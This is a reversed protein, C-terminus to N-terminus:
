HDNRKHVATRIEKKSVKKIIAERKDSKTKTRALGLELKILNNKTYAKLPIIRLATRNVAGILTKIEEKKLLLRRPRKPDYNLPTNNPQYPPIDANILFFQGHEPMVSSGALNIRGNKAAKVEFGLLEIGAEFTELIQYDFYAKKNESILTM